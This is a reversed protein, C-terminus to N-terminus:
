IQVIRDTESNTQKEAQCGSQLLEVRLVALLDELIELSMGQQCSVFGTLALEHIM